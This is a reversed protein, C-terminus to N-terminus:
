LPKHGTATFMTFGVMFRGEQSRQRLDAQWAEIEADTAQSQERLHDFLQDFGLLKSVVEFNPLMVLTGTTVVQELGEQKLLGYLQRGIWGNPLADNFMNVVKRTLVRDTADIVMTEWDQEVIALRGGPKLVRVVEALAPRPDRLHQFVLRVQVADFESAQFPLSRVDGQIFEVQSGEEAARRRAEEVMTQSYDIGVVRGGPGVLDALPRTLDGTGSGVDLIHQGEQVELYAYFQRPDQKIAAINGGRSGDLFRIFWDPDGSSDVDAWQDHWTQNM